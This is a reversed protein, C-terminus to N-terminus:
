FADHRTHYVRHEATKVASLKGLETLVQQRELFSGRVGSIMSCNFHEQLNKDTLHASISVDGESSGTHNATLQSNHDKLVECSSNPM